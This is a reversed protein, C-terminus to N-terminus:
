RVCAGVHPPWGRRSAGRLDPCVTTGFSGIAVNRDKSPRLVMDFGPTDDIVCYVNDDNSWACAWTDGLVFQGERNYLTPEGFEAKTIKM